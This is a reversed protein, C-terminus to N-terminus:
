QRRMTRRDARCHLIISIYRVPKKGARKKRRFIFKFKEHFIDNEVKSYNEELYKLKNIMVKMAEDLEKENTLKSAINNLM